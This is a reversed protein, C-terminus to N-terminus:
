SPTRPNIKTSSDNARNDKRKKTPRDFNLPSIKHKGKPLEVDKDKSMWHATYCIGSRSGDLKFRLKDAWPVFYSWRSIWITMNRLLEFAENPVGAQHLRPQFCASDGIIFANIGDELIRGYEQFPADWEPNPLPHMRSGTFHGLAARDEAHMNAILAVHSPDVPILPPAEAGVCRLARFAPLCIDNVLYNLNYRVPTQSTITKEYRDKLRAVREHLENLFIPTLYNCNGPWLPKIEPSPIDDDSDSNM